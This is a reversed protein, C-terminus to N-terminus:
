GDGWRLSPDCAIAIYAKSLAMALQQAGESAHRSTTDPKPLLASTFWATLLGRM